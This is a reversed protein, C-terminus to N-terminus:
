NIVTIYAVHNNLLRNIERAEQETTGPKMEIYMCGTDHIFPLQTTDPCCELAWVSPTESHPLEKLRYRCDARYTSM